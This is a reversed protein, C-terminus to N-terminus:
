FGYFFFFFCFLFCLFNACISCNLAFDEQSWVPQPCPESLSQGGGDSAVVVLPVPVLLFGAPSRGQRVDSEFGALKPFSEVLHTLHSM